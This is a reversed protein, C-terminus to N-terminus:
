PFEVFGSVVRPVDCKCVIEPRVGLVQYWKRIHDCSAACLQPMDPVEFELRAVASITV